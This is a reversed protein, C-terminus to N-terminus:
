YVPFLFDTDRIILRDAPLFAQPALSRGHFAAPSTIVHYEYLKPTPSSRMM